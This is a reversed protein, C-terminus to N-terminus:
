STPVPRDPWAAQPMAKAQRLYAELVVAIADLTQGSSESALSAASSWRLKAYVEAFQPAPSM